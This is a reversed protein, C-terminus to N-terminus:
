RTATHMGVDTGTSMAIGIDAIALAPADNIGNVVMRSATVRAAGRRGERASACLSRYRSPVANREAFTTGINGKRSFDHVAHTGQKDTCHRQKDGAGRQRLVTM